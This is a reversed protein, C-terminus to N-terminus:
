CTLINLGRGSPLVSTSLACDCAIALKMTVDGAVTCRKQNSKEEGNLGKARETFGEQGSRNREGIDVGEETDEKCSVM